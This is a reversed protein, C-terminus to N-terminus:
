DPVTLEADDKGIAQAIDRLITVENVVAYLRELVGDWLHYAQVVNTARTDLHYSHRHDLFNRVAVLELLLLWLCDHLDTHDKALSDLAFVEAPPKNM